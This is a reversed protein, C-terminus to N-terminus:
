LNDGFSRAANGAQQLTAAASKTTSSASQLIEIIKKDERKSAGSILREVESIQKSFKAEFAAIEASVKKADAALRHLESRLNQLQAM